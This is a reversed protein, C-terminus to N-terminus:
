LSIGLGALLGKVKDVLALAPNVQGSLLPVDGLLTNLVQDLTGLLAPLVDLVPGLVAKDVDDVLLVVIKELTTTISLVLPSLIIPVLLGIVPGLLPLDELAAVVSNLGTTLDTFTKALVEAASASGPKIISNVSGVLLNIVVGVISTLSGVLDLLGREQLAHATYVEVTRAALEEYARENLVVPAPAPAPAANPAPAAVAATALAAALIMSKASVM